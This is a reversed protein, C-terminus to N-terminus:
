LGGGLRDETEGSLLARARRCQAVSIRVREGGKPTAELAWETDPADARYADLVAGALRAFPRLAEELSAIRAASNELASVVRVEFSEEADDGHVLRQLAEHIEDNAASILNLKAEMEAVRARLSALDADRTSLVSELVAVRARLAANDVAGCLHGMTFAWLDRLEDKPIEYGSAREADYISQGIATSVPDAPESMFRKAADISAQVAIREEYRQAAARDPSSV